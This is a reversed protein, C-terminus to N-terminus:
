GDQECHYCSDNIRDAIQQQHAEEGGMHAAIAHRHAEKESLGL